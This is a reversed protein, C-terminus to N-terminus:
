LSISEGEKSLAREVDKFNNIIEDHSLVRADGIERLAENARFIIMPRKAKNYVMRNNDDVMADYKKSMLDAYAKTIKFQHAFQMATNFIEYAKKYDDNNKLSNLKVKQIERNGIGNKRMTRQVLKLEKISVKGYKEFIIKFADFREKSTPMKLDKIVEYRHEYVYKKGKGAHMKYISFPGKYVKSDWEDDTFYTYMWSKKNKYDVSNDYYSM